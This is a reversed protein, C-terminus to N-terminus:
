NTALLYNKFDDFKATMPVSQKKGQMFKKLGEPVEVERKITEEMVDKFKAPHATELFIGTFEPHDSLFKKLGLYAVAGHPDMLYNNKQLMEIIAAKTEEDDFSYGTLENRFNKV